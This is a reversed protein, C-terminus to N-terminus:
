AIVCAEEKGEGKEPWGPHDRLEGGRILEHNEEM